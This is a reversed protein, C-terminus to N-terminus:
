VSKGFARPMAVLTIEAHEPVPEGHAKAFARFREALTAGAFAHAPGEPQFVEGAPLFDADRYRDGVPKAGVHLTRGPRRRGAGAEVACASHRM